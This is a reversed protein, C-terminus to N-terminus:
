KKYRLLLSCYAIQGILTPPWIPNIHCIFDYVNRQEREFALADEFTLLQQKIEYFYLQLIFYAMKGHAWYPNSAM